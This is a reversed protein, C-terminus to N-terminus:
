VRECNVTVAAQPWLFYDDIEAGFGTDIAHGDVYLSVDIGGHARCIAETNHNVSGATQFQGIDRGFCQWGVATEAGARFGVYQIDRGATAQVADHHVDGSEVGGGSGQGLSVPDCQEVTLRGFAPRRAAPRVSKLCDVTLQM